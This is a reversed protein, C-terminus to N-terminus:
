SLSVRAQVTLRVDVGQWQDTAGRDRKVHTVYADDVTNSIRRNAAVTKEVGGALVAARDRVAKYDNGTYIVLVRVHLEYFEETTPTSGMTVDPNWDAEAEAEIWVTEKPPSPGPDGLQVTAGVLDAHAQMLVLLADEAAEMKSVLSM